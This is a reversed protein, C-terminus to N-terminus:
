KTYYYLVAFAAIGQLITATPIRGSEPVYIVDGPEITPNQDPKGGRLFKGLDYVKQVPKHNVNRTVYVTSLKAKHESDHGKAMSFATALTVNQGEPIPYVGPLGVYGLIMYQDTLTPVTVLDGKRMTPVAERSGHILAPVLDYVEEHGDMRTLRVHSLSGTDTVGGGAAIAKLLNDGRQLTHIGPLKVQGVVYVTFMGADVTITDGDQLVVNSPSDAALVDQMHFVQNAGNRRVTIIVDSPKVDPPLGGAGGIASQLTFGPLLPEPGPKQVDGDVTIQQIRASKLVVTVNPEILEKRYMKTLKKSLQDLTLGTVNASGVVPFVVIGGEPVLFDGSLEPHNRVVVTIEDNSGLTYSAPASQGAQTVTAFSISFLLAILIFVGLVRYSALSNLRRVTSKVIIELGKSLRIPRNFVIDASVLPLEGRHVTV